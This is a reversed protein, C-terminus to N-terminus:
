RFFVFNWFSEILNGYVTKQKFVMEVVKKDFYFTVSNDQTMPNFAMRKILAM